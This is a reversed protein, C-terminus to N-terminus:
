FPIEDDIELNHPYPVNPGKGADTEIRFKKDDYQARFNVWAEFQKHLDDLAMIFLMKSFEETRDGALYHALDELKDAHEDCLRFQLNAENM